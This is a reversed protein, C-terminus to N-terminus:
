GLVKSAELHALKKKEKKKRKSLNANSPRCKASLIKCIM